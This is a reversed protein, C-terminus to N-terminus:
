MVECALWSAGDPGWGFRKSALRTFVLMVWHDSRLTWVQLQVVFQALHSVATYCCNATIRTIHRSTKFIFRVPLWNKCIADKVISDKWTQTNTPSSLNTRPWLELLTFMLPTFTEMWYRNSLYAPLYPKKKGPTLCCVNAVFLIENELMWHQAKQKGM